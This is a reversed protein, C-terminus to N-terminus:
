RSYESRLEEAGASRRKAYRLVKDLVRDRLRGRLWNLPLSATRKGHKEVVINYQSQRILIVALLDMWESDSLEIGNLTIRGDEYLRAQIRNNLRVINALIIPPKTLFEKKQLRKTQIVTLINGADSQIVTVPADPPLAVDARYKELLRKIEPQVGENETEEL